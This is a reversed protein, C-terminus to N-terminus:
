HLETSSPKLLVGCSYGDLQRPMTYTTPTWDALEGTVAARGHLQHFVTLALCCGTNALLRIGATGATVDSIFLAWHSRTVNVPM